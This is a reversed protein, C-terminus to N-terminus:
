NAPAALPLPVASLLGMGGYGGGLQGVDASGWCYVGGTALEGCTFHSGAALRTFSLGGLVAVPQSSLELVGHGLQGYSGDGWCLTEGSTTVACTHHAGTAV